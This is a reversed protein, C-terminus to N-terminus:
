KKAELEKLVSRKLTEIEVEQKEILPDFMPMEKANQGQEHKRFLFLYTENAPRWRHFFLRNKAIITERLAEASAAGSQYDHATLGLGGTLERALGRYGEATYHVGNETLQPAAPKSSKAVLLAGGLLAMGLLDVPLQTCLALLEHLTTEHDASLHQVLVWAACADRPIAGM